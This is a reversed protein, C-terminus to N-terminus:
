RRLASVTQLMEDSAQVARSNLDFARQAIILGALEEVVNVNSNELFGQNITGRGETGPTGTTAEGSSDTVTFLNKGISRLGAPNIFRATEITGIETPTTSAAQLVTVKGDSGVTISIADTPISIAPELPYGDSNVIRGDKDLKFAGARTYAITGDPQTIQFFGDGEIVLDLQNGTSIFDGQSFIKQVAVPKVGLGVQIGSPIQVGEASPAGPDRLTQYLLDQFDARSRKFGVTNVNALNNSIVDVSLSQAQMGTAATFLSRIM